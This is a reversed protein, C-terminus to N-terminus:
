IVSKWFIYGLSVLGVVIFTYFECINDKGICKGMWPCHHDFGEVCVGCFDCHMCGYPQVVDCYGCRRGRASRNRLEDCDIRRLHGSRSDNREHVALSRPDSSDANADKNQEAGEEGAIEPPDLWCVAAAELVGPNSFACRLFALTSLSTIIVGIIIERQDHVGSIYSWGCGVIFALMLICCYWHPGIYITTGPIRWALIRGM